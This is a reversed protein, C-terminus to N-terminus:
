AARVTALFTEVEIKLRNGDSSLSQASALVQSSASGTESAGQNVETINAAVQTTGLAAQQVNRAIEQTAVGQEEVAASISTSNESIRGITASIEKIAAVSDQTASQMGTIQASIEDTAKATQAALAKVEQAVVAFGRGAEGARAAEITANLALLNTQEAVATILQVVDGIRGAAQQLESIRADTKEAQRVAEIAIMSSEQVRRGVEVLSAALEESASAVAQVNISAEESAAAVSSSLGQTTEATQTLTRAAAELETASSSVTGIIGGVASEFSDALRHMDAKRAAAAQADAEAKEMAEIEAKEVAKAKIAEVARGVDGLEDRRRSAAIEVDFNGGAMRNLVQVLSRIPRTIGFLVIVLAVAVGVAFGVGLAILSSRSAWASAASLELRGKEMRADIRDRTDGLARVLGELTGGVADQARLAETARGALAHALVADTRPRLTGNVQNVVGDIESAMAGSTAERVVRLSAALGDYTRAYEERYAPRNAESQDAIARWMVYRIQYLSRNVRGIYAAARAENTLFASYGEDVDQMKGAMYYACAGSIGGLLVIVALIKALISLRSLLAM